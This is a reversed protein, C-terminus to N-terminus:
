EEEPLAFGSGIMVLGLVIGFVTSLIGGEFILGSLGIVVLLLLLAGLAFGAGKIIYEGFLSEEQETDSPEEIIRETIIHAEEEIEDPELTQDTMTNQIPHLPGPQERSNGGYRDLSKGPRM